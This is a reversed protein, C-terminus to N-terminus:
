FHLARVAGHWAHLMCYPTGLFQVCSCRHLVQGMGTPPNLLRGVHLAASSRALGTITGAGSGDELFMCDDLHVLV